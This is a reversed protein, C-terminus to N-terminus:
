EGYKKQEVVHYRGGAMTATDGSRWIMTASAIYNESKLGHVNCNM